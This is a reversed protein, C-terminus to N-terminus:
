CDVFGNQVALTFEEVAVARLQASTNAYRPVRRLSGKEAADALHQVTMAAIANKHRDRVPLDNLVKLRDLTTDSM